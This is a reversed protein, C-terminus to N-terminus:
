DTSPAAERSRWWALMAQFDGQFGRKLLAEYGISCSFASGSDLLQRSAATDCDVVLRQPM